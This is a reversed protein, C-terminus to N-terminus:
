EAIEPCLDLKETSTHVFLFISCIDQEVILNPNDVKKKNMDFYPLDTNMLSVFM